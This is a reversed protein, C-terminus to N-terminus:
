FSREVIFSCYLGVLTIFIPDVLTFVAEFVQEPRSWVKLDYTESLKVTICKRYAFIM